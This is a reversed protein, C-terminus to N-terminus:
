IRISFKSKTKIGGVQTENIMYMKTRRARWRSIRNTPAHFTQISNFQISNLICISWSLIRIRWPFHPYQDRSFAFKDHSLTVDHSIAFKWWARSFTFKGNIFAFEDNMFSYSCMISWEEYFFSFQTHSFEDHSFAYEGLFHPIMCLAPIRIRWPIRIQWSVYKKWLFAFINIAHLLHSNILFAHSVMELSHSTSFAFPNHSFEDHSFTVDYHSFAFEDRSHSMVILSHSIMVLSHSMVILSHSSMM